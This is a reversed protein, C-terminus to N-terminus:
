TNPLSPLVKVAQVFMGPLLKQLHIAAHSANADSKFIGFITAGSGSMASADAQAHILHQKLTHLNPLLEQAAQELDNHCMTVITEYDLIDKIKKETSCTSNLPIGLKSYVFQTPIEVRPNILVLGFPPLKVPSLIEGIGEAFAPVTEIFFPVDAGLTLAIAHLEPIPINLGHMNALATLTTAANSSGGGLGAGLPIVKDHDVEVGGIGYRRALIEWARYILNHTGNLQAPGRYTFGDTSPRFRLTDHLSIPVMLSHLLHYGDSRRGTIRLNINVKAYSRATYPASM